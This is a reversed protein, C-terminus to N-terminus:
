KGYKRMLFKLSVPCEEFSGDVVDNLMYFGRFHNNTQHNLYKEDHLYTSGSIIATMEKGDARVGYAIDRGQQHGAVCSMHKKTLIARASTIPRGMVGSCFYHCFAIGEIVVPELFPFVEWGWRDYEFDPIGIVGDLKPIAEITRDTRNEHNGLTLVMRPNWGTKKAEIIPAMLTKMANHVALIDEKYRQGEYNMSGPEDHFSLSPMDAFDGICVIVDPRKEAIYRGLYGLYTFDIGPKAQVDMICAIKLGIPPLGPVNNLKKQQTIAITNAIPKSLYENKKHIKIWRRITSTLCGVDTAVKIRSEGALVRQIAEERIEKSYEDISGGM